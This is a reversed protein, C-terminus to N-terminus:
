LKIPTTLTTWLRKIFGVKTVGTGGDVIPLPTVPLEKSLTQFGSRVEKLKTRIANITRPTEENEQNVRRIQDTLVSIDEHSLKNPIKAYDVILQLEQKTWRRCTRRTSKKTTEWFRVPLKSLNPAIINKTDENLGEFFSPSNQLPVDVVKKVRRVNGNRVTRLLHKVGNFNRYDKSNKWVAIKLEKRLSRIYKTPTRKTTIPYLDVFKKVLEVEEPTIWKGAM